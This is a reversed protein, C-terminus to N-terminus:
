RKKQILESLLEAKLVQLALEKEVKDKRLHHFLKIVRLGFLFTKDVILNDKTM